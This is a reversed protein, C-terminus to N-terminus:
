RARGRPARSPGRNRRPRDRVPRTTLRSAAAVSAAITQQACPAEAFSSGTPTAVSVNVFVDTVVPWGRGSTVVIQYGATFRVPVASVYPRRSALAFRPRKGSITKECPVHPDGVSADYRVIASTRSPAITAAGACVPLVFSSPTLQRRLSTNASEMTFRSGSTANTMSEISASAPLLVDRKERRISTSVIATAPSENPPNVASRM